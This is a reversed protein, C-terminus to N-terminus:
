NWLLTYQHSVLLPYLLGNIISKASSEATALLESSALAEERADAECTRILEALPINPNSPIFSFSKEDVLYATVHIEPLTATITKKENDIEFKVDSMTIGSKVVADYKIYCLVKEHEPDKYLEAIGSYTFEATSLEDIDIADTLAASTLVQAAKYGIINSGKIVVITVLLLISAIRIIASAGLSGIKKSLAALATKNKGVSTKRTKKEM